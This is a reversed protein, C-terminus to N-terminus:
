MFGFLTLYEDRSIWEHDYRKILIALKDYM